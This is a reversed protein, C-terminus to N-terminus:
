SDRSNPPVLAVTYGYKLRSQNQCWFRKFIWILPHLSSFYLQGEQITILQNWCFLGAFYSIRTIPSQIVPPGLLLLLGNWVFDSFFGRSNPFECILLSSQILIFEKNKNTNNRQPWIWDNLNASTVFLQDTPFM